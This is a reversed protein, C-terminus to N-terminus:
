LHYDHIYEIPMITYVSVIFIFVKGSPKSKQIYLIYQRINVSVTISFIQDSQSFLLAEPSYNASTNSNTLQDRSM